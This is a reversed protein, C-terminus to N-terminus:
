DNGAPIQPTQRYGRRKRLRVDLLPLERREDDVESVLSGVREAGMRRYFLEAHPNVEITLGLAGLTAARRAAHAFM